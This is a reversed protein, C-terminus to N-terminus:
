RLGKNLSGRFELAFEVVNNMNEPLTISKFRTLIILHGCYNRIIPGNGSSCGCTGFRHSLHMGTTLGGRSHLTILLLFNNQPALKDTDAFPIGFMAGLWKM